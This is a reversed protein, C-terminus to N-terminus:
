DPCECVTNQAGVTAFPMRNHPLHVSVAHLVGGAARWMAWTCRVSVCVCLCACARCASVTTARRLNANAHRQLLLTVPTLSFTPHSRFLSHVLSLATELPLWAIKDDQGSALFTMTRPALAERPGAGDLAGVPTHAAKEEHSPPMSHKGLPLNALTKLYLQLHTENALKLEPPGLGM